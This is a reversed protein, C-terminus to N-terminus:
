SLPHIFISGNLLVSFFANSPDPALFFLKGTGIELVRHGAKIGAKDIILRLKRMQAEYLPDLLPLQKPLTPDMNTPMTPMNHLMHNVSPLEFQPSPQGSSAALTSAHLFDPGSQSESDIDLDWNEPGSMGVRVVNVPTKAGSRGSRSFLPSSRGLRDHSYLEEYIAVEKEEWLGCSYTMDESLFSAFMENSIDYHASINRRTNSISGIFSSTNLYAQPLTVFYYSLPNSLAQPLRLISSAGNGTTRSQRDISPLSPTSGFTLYPKNLIFLTFIAFLSSITIDGYM